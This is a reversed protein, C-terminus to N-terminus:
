GWRGSDLYLHIVELGRGCSRGPPLSVAQLVDVAQWDVVQRGNRGALPRRGGAALCFRGLPKTSSEEPRHHALELRLEPISEALGFWNMGADQGREFDVAPLNELHGGSTAPEGHVEARPCGLQNADLGRGPQTSNKGASARASFYAGSEEIRERDGVLPSVQGYRAGGDGWISAYDRLEFPRRCATPDDSQDAWLVRVPELCSPPLSEAEVRCLDHQPRM